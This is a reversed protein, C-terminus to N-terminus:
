KAFIEPYIVKALEEVGEILRPGSRTVLDSHIDYVRGTKVAPVESWAKRGLVQEKSNEAYYGYTTIIVDPNLEVAKEETMMVWGEQDGAANTANITELMEHMFTNKGTTYIEPSPSVEVWVKPKSKADATKEKIEKLSSKMSTVIEEAKESTGTVKGILAISDYVAEFSSADPVVLVVIGADKLQTLGAEASIATSEHALVVDPKLSIIKEVNFEIGGIKEKNTVEEPYNDFDSVGVVEENLGLAYAIETNSPILSVIREPKKTLTIEHDLADKVKVNFENASQSKEQTITEGSGCAALTVVTFLAMFLSLVYNMKKNM